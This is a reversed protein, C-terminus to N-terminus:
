KSNVFSKFGWRLYFAFFPDTIHLIREEKEWDIVPTSSEDSAAIQSMQDLVRSVEHAQPSADESVDRIKARLEEYGITEIGPKLESLAYLILGYIDTEIGGKIKRVMRDARQRPGKSLKDFIVKGTNEAIKEFLESYNVSECAIENEVTEKVGLSLCLEKCFEQMLHPSGIAEKAFSEIIRKSVNINLLPFGLDAIKILDATDWPPVDITEIRGTMEREVKVADLRRHPIAIFVVPLGDFILSKVARVISGQKDRPLYHFDDIILSKKKMRLEHLAVTKPNGKITKTKSNGKRGSVSYTGGGEVKFLVLQASTGAKVEATDSEDSSETVSTDPFINLQSAIDVWFEDESSFSGGDFWICETKPFINSTLVTKGSKTLGTMMVLKCLNDKAEKLSQELNLEKRPNYTLHPLGGPVFVKSTRYSEKKSFIGM